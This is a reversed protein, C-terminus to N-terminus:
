VCVSPCWGRRALLLGLLPLGPALDERFGLCIKRRPVNSLSNDTEGMWNFALGAQGGVPFAGLGLVFLLLAADLTNEAVAAGGLRRSLPFTEFDLGQLDPVLIKLSGKQVGLLGVEHEDLLEVLESSCGADHGPRRAGEVSEAGIRDCQRLLEEARLIAVAGDELLGLGRNNVLQQHGGV